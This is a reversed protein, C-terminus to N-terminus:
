RAPSGRRCRRSGSRASRWSCGCTGAARDRAVGVEARQQHRLTERVVARLALRPGAGEGREHCTVRVGRRRLGRRTHTRERAVRLVALVHEVDKAHVAVLDRLDVLLQHRGLQEAGGLLRPVFRDLEALGVAHAVRLRADQCRGPGDAQQHVAVGGADLGVETEHLHLLEDAAPRHRDDVLRHGTRQAPEPVGLVLDSVDDGVDVLVLRQQTRRVDGGLVQRHEGARHAVDGDLRHAVDPHHRGHLREDASRDRLRDVNRLLRRDLLHGLDVDLRPAHADLRDGDVAVPALDGLRQRRRLLAVAFRLGRDRGLEGPLHGLELLAEGVLLDHDHLLRDTLPQGAPAPRAREREPDGVALAVDGDALVVVAPRTLHEDLDRLLARGEGPDHVGERDRDAEAQLVAHRQRGVHPLVRVHLELGGAEGVVALKTEGRREDVVDEAAEGDVVQRLLLPGVEADEGGVLARLRRQGADLLRDGLVLRAVVLLDDDDVDVRREARHAAVLHLAGAGAVDARAAAGGAAARLLFRKRSSSDTLVDDTLTRAARDAQDTEPAALATLDRRHRNVAQVM